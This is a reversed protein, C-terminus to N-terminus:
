VTARTKKNELKKSDEKEVHQSRVGSDWPPM